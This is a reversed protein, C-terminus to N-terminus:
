ALQPPHQPVLKGQTRDTGNNTRGYGFSKLIRGTDTLGEGVRFLRGAADYSYALDHSAGPANKTRVNGLADYTYTSTGNGSTGIEPHTEGTLFGRGDYNFSRTQTCGGSADSCM